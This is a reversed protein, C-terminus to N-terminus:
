EDHPALVVLEDRGAEGLSIALREAAICLRHDDRACAVPRPDVPGLHDVGDRGKQEVGLRDRTDEDTWAVGVAPASSLSRLARSGHDSSAGTSTEASAHPTASRM